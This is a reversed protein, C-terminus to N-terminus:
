PKVYFNFLGTQTNLGRNQVKDVNTFKVYHECEGWRGFNIRSSSNSVFLAYNGTKSVRFKIHALQRNGNRMNTVSIHNPSSNVIAGQHAVVNYILSDDRFNGQQGPQYFQVNWSGLYDLPLVLVRGDTDQPFFDMVLAVEDGLQLTDQLAPMDIYMKSYLEVECSKFNEDFCATLLCFTFLYGLRLMVLYLFGAWNVICMGSFYLMCKACDTLGLRPQANHLNYM